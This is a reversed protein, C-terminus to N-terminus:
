ITKLYENMSLRERDALKQLIKQTGSGYQIATKNRMSIYDPIGIKTSLERLIIKRSFEQQNEKNNREKILFELPLQSVFEVLKFDLYPFRLEIGHSSAMLDDREINRKAIFRLEDWLIQNLNLTTSSKQKLFLDEYRKYGIFLEDAGQGTFCVNIKNESAKKSLFYIPLAIGVDVPSRSDLRSLVKKLNYEVIDETINVRIYSNNENEHFYKEAVLIDKSGEFGIILPTLYSSQKTALKHLVTSDVGGSFFIGLRSDDKRLNNLLRKISNTLHNKLSDICIQLNVEDLSSRTPSFSSEMITSNNNFTLFNNEKTLEIKCWTGPTVQSIWENQIGLEVLIKKESAFGWCNTSKWYFWLPRIGFSDRAIYLESSTKDFLILAYDAKLRNLINSFLKERKDVKSKEQSYVELIYDFDNSELSFKIDQAKSFLDLHNYIEGNAVLIDGRNSVLPFCNTGVLSLQSAIFTIEPHVKTYIHIKYNDPGRLSLISEINSMQNRIDFGRFVLIGCM